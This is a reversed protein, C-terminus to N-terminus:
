SPLRYANVTADTAKAFEEIMNQYQGWDGGAASCGIKEPFAISELNPIKLIENLCSRFYLRRALYGDRDGDPYKPRGPYYQALLAIVFRQDKGNGRIIITGPNDPKTREAYINAHPFRQFMDAALHAARNTICNCQHCIYKESAEFLNDITIKM